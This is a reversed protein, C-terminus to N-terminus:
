RSLVGDLYAQVRDYLPYPVYQPIEELTVWAVADLEDADAVKAEGQLVKCATYSM